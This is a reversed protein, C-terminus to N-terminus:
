NQVETWVFLVPIQVAAVVAASIMVYSSPAYAVLVLGVVGGLVAVGEQIVCGFTFNEVGYYSEEYAIYCSDMSAAGYMFKVIFNTTVAVALNEQSVMVVFCAVNIVVVITQRKRFSLTKRALHLLIRGLVAAFTVLGLLLLEKGQTVTVSCDTDPKAEKIKLLQILTPVLLITMWGQFDVIGRFTALKTLRAAFNPVTAQKEKQIIEEKEEEKGPATEEHFYCHLMVIPPIFLPLSTVLIFTRWGM